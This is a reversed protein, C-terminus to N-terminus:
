AADTEPFGRSKLVRGNKLVLLVDVNPLQEIMALTRESGLVMAATSLADAQIATPAVISVSALEAPSQGTSPDFVHNKSFDDSFMTEYDGSTSLARGDLAALAVFANSERPHQIGVTWEDGGPKAGISGIEGANILAHQIGHERLAKVARDAAFGQAIGNLTVSRVPDKLEISDCRAVVGRWDVAQRTEAIEENTPLRGEKKASAFMDWLPQVTVDFAGDSLQSTAAAATLVEVLYPHPRTVIRERNLRCLQSDDRYLSMVEEVTELEAFAADLAQNARRSSAGLVTMTVESGLAHSRRMVAQDAWRRLSTAAGLSLGAFGGASLMLFKRRNIPM